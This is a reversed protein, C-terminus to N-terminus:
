TINIFHANSIENTLEIGVILQIRTQPIVSIDKSGANPVLNDTQTKSLRRPPPVEDRDKQKKMETKEKRM